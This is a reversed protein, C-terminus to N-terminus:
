LVHNGRLAHQGSFKPVVLGDYKSAGQEDKHTGIMNEGPLFSVWHWTEGSQRRRGPREWGTCMRISRGSSEQSWRWSKDQPLTQRSVVHRGKRSFGHKETM